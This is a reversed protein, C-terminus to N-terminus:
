TEARQLAVTQSLRLGFIEKAEEVGRLQFHGLSELRGDCRGAAEAFQSSFLIQQGLPECLKEMRVVENVAPGIVTFDLRDVAGVNGYLVEGVHLAIDVDAFPLDAAERELNRTKLNASAEVAADLARRCVAKEDREDFSITALMADGIFKLVHGGRPRLAATLTEFADNLMEVIAAGSSVDSIRTFGRLDAYWLVSHLGNVTGREVAGSHVRAGADYGLYTRLLGSAIDHGAHAKMALSLEPLTSHLLEIEADHFGGPQDNTFSYLVGTGHSPDASEGFRFGLCLYDTGGANYFDVLAPFDRQDPGLELHRRMWVKKEGAQSRQILAYFPSALWEQSVLGGRAFQQERVSQWERKWTYGYGTWQPHLTQTSVYARMLAFGHAEVRRCYGEFLDRATAGRLGQETAWRKIEDIAEPLNAASLAREPSSLPLRARTESDVFRISTENMREDKQGAAKGDL